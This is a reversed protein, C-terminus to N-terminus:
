PEAYHGEEDFDVEGLKKALAARAASLTAAVTGRAVGMVEAIEVETYDGVYRLVVATRQRAPLSRVAEWLGPSSADPEVWRGDPPLRRLLERRRRRFSRRVCNLAVTCVWAGPSTMASVREWRGLARSFAEDTAERAVDLDGCLAVCSALVQRHEDRYWAEFSGSVSM